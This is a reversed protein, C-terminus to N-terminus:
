CMRCAGPVFLTLVARAAFNLSTYCISSILLPLLSSRRVVLRKTLERTLSLGFHVGGFAVQATRRRKQHLGGLLTLGGVNPRITCHKAHVGAPCGLVKTLRGFDKVHQYNTSSILRHYLSNFSGGRSVCICMAGHPRFSPTLM